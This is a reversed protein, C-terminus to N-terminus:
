AAYQLNTKNKRFGNLMARLTSYPMNLEIAALHACEWEKGTVSCIVKKARHHKGMSHSEGLKRRHEETFGRGFMPNNSGRMRKSIAEREIKSHQRGFAPALEGRRGFMPNKDGAFRGKHVVSIKRKTEESHGTPFDNPSTPMINYGYRDDITQLMNVWYNEFSPMYEEKCYDLVEFKFCDAGYKNFAYQLHVNPHKNKNLHSRHGSFRRVMNKSYGVYIKGDVTNTITYVGSTM